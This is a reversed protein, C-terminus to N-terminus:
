LLKGSTYFPIFIGPIDDRNAEDMVSGCSAGSLAKGLDWGQRGAHSTELGAPLCTCGLAESAPLLVASPHACGTTSPLALGAKFIRKRLGAPQADGAKPLHAPDTSNSPRRRQRGSPVLSWAGEARALGEGHVPVLLVLWPLLKGSPM